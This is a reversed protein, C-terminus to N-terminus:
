GIQYRLVAGIGGIGDLKKGGEHENSIIFVEGKMSEVDKLMGEIFDYSGDKRANMIKSDTILLVAVAGADVAKKVEEAGYAALEGKAVEKLLSEVANIEKAFREKELASKLEDRKMLENFSTKGVSSCTALIVKKRFEKDKMEKMLEDKWFSPSALIVHSSGYRKAYEIMQNIIQAYFNTGKIAPEAKKAVDGRMSSLLEYGGRVLKAFYAEERDFVCMLIPSGADECSENIKDLQFKLWKEKIITIITREEINFSHHSGRAVDEPGDVISGGVKLLDSSYDIKDVLIKLYVPKKIIKANRDEAAGLKIKRITKGSVHDGNDIIASLYWLDNKNEVLVKIEGKRLDKHRIKM